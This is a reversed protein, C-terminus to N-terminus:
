AMNSANWMEDVAAAVLQPMGQGGFHPNKALGNWGLDCFQRYADRFGPPTWVTGNEDLRAGERDGVRNLPDLVGTAFRSAEELIVAVTGSTAEEFGPLAAVADLGALETLVFQMEPLPACYPNM